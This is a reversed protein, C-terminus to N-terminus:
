LDVLAVAEAQKVRMVERESVARASQRRVPDARILGPEARHADFEAGPLGDDLLQPLERELKGFSFRASNVPAKVHLNM